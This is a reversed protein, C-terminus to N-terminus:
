QSDVTVHALQRSARSVGDELIEYGLAIPGLRLSGRATTTSGSRSDDSEHIVVAGTLEITITNRQADIEVRASRAGIMVDEELLSVDHLCTGDDSLRDAAIWWPGVLGGPPTDGTPSQALAARHIDARLTSAKISTRTSSLAWSGGILAIMAALTIVGVMQLRGRRHQTRM